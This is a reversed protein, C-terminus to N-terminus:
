LRPSRGTRRALEQEPSLMPAAAATTAAAATATTVGNATRGYKREVQARVADLKQKKDTSGDAGTTTGRGDNPGNGAVTSRIMDAPVDKLLETVLATIQEDKSGAFAISQGKQLIRDTGNEDAVLRERNTLALAQALVPNVGKKALADQVTQQLGNVRAALKEQKIGENIRTIEADKEQLKRGYEEHLKAADPNSSKLQKLDDEAKQRAEQAARLDNELRTKAGAHAGTAVAHGDNFAPQYIGNKLDAYDPDDKIATLLKGKDAYSKLADLLKKLEPDM